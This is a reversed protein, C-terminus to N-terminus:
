KLTKITCLHSLNRFWKPHFISKLIIKTFYPKTKPIKFNKMVWNRSVAATIFNINNNTSLCCYVIFYFINFEGNYYNWVNEDVSKLKCWYKWYCLESFRDTLIKVTTMFTKCVNQMKFTWVCHCSRIEISGIGHFEFNIWFMNVLLELWSVNFALIHICFIYAAIFVAIYLVYFYLLMWSIIAHPLLWPKM